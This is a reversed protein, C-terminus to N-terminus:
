KLEFLSVPPAPYLRYCADALTYPAQNGIQRNLSPYALQLVEWAQDETLWDSEALVDAPTHAM